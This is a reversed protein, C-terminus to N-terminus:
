EEIEPANIEGTIIHPTIFIVLETKVVKDDTSSFVKGLLPISGLIPLKNIIQIKEDKVLGAIIITVGDKVMVEAVGTLPCGTVTGLKSIFPSSLSRPIRCCIPKGAVKLVRASPAITASAWKSISRVRQFM